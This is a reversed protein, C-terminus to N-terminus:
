AAIKNPIIKLIPSTNGANKRVADLGESTVNVKFAAYMLGGDEQPLGLPAMEWGSALCHSLIPMHQVLTLNRWGHLVACEMVGCIMQKLADFRDNKKFHNPNYCYRSLEFIDDGRPVGNECYKSLVESMLHPKTTPNLRLSSRITENDEDMAVLYITDCTDFDDMEKGNRESLDWGLRDIFITKRQEYMQSMIDHYLDRNEYNILHIM